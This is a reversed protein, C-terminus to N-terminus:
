PPFFASAAPSRIVVRKLRPAPAAGPLCSDLHLAQEFSGEVRGIFSSSFFVVVSSAAPVGGRLEIRGPLPPTQSLLRHALSSAGKHRRKAAFVRRYPRTLTQKPPEIAGVSRVRLRLPHNFVCTRKAEVLLRNVNM